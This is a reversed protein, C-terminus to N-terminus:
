GSECVALVKGKPQVGIQKVGQRALEDLTAKAYGGRDYVMLEPTAQVGFRDRYASLAKLPMKTEDPARRRLTGFLYGGGLRSILYPLGLEVRKGAKHRVVSVAQTLGAHLIKGKAVKGTTLGHVIQPWLERAVESMRRLTGLAARTVVEHSAGLRAVLGGTSALLQKTEVRIRELVHQKVAKGKAFLHHEKVSRLVQQAQEIAGEVGSVGQKGLKDLARLCRQAIGRLIGPENPYGIPLEEMTTDSSLIRLDAFGHRRAEHLMLTNLDELGEQSLAGYVRAIYPLGLFERNTGHPEEKWRQFGAELQQGRQRVLARAMWSTIAANNFQLFIGEGKNEIAPLWTTERALSARRVGMELEGEIDPALAEFRTFGALAAVERLRHVLVVREISEMWPREWRDRPLTRAFFNGDPRDEGIEDQSAILTELEAQKVSKTETSSGGRRAQIEAFVEDDSLGELAANVRAKRREYRLMDLDEVEALFDWVTDVAVKVTEDRDPLSIVSM